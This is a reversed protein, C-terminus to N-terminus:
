RSAHSAPAALRRMAQPGDMSQPAHGGDGEGAADRGGVEQGDGLELGGDLPRHLLVRGPHQQVAIRHPVQRQALPDARAPAVVRGADEDRVARQLREREEGLHQEGPGAAAGPPVAVM